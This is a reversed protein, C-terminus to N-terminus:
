KKREFHLVQTSPKGATWMGWTQKLHDGDIFTLVLRDMHPVDHNPLNTADLFYFAINKGAQKAVMRPQNNLACYHTLILTGNDTHYMTVMMPGTSPRLTEMVTTDGSVLTYTLSVLRGDADKGQWEGALSKIMDFGPNEVVATAPTTAGALAAIVLLTLARRPM